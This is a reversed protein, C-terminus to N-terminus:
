CACIGLIHDLICKAAEIGLGCPGDVLVLVIMSTMIYKTEPTNMQQHAEKLSLSSSVVMPSRM